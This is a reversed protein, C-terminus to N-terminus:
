CSSAHQLDFNCLDFMIDISNFCSAHTWIFFFQISHTVTEWRVMLLGSKSQWLSHEWSRIFALFNILESRTTGHCSMNTLHDDQLVLNRTFTWLQLRKDWITVDNVWVYRFMEEPCWYKVCFWFRPLWQHLHNFKNLPYYFQWKIKVRETVTCPGLHRLHQGRMEGWNGNARYSQTTATTQQWLLRKRAETEAAETQWCTQLLGATM